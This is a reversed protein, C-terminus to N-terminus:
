GRDAELLELLIASSVGFVALYVGVDFLLPTGLTGVAPLALDLWVGTLFPAGAFFGFLGSAIAVALGVAAVRLPMVRLRPRVDVVGYALARLAAAAAAVLGAVFGGGPHDHGRVLLVASLLLLLPTLSVAAFRLVPTNM